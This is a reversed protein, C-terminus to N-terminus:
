RGAPQCRWDLSEDLEFNLSVDRGFRRKLADVIKSQQADDVPSAAVLTVEVRNETEAKLSDYASAIDPLAQLRGNEALLKLLNKFRAASNVGASACGGCCQWRLEELKDLNGFGAKAAVAAAAVAIVDILKDTDIGPEQILRAVHEESVVSAAAHLADSWIGLQGGEKALEFVAQAYPRAIAANEAM